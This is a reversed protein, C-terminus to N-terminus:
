PMEFGLGFKLTLFTDTKPDNPHLYAVYNIFYEGQATLTFIPAHEGEGLSTVLGAQAYPQFNGFSFYGNIADVHLDTGLVLFGSIPRPRWFLALGTQWNFSKQDPTFIGEFGNHYGVPLSTPGHNFFTHPKPTEIGDLSVVGGTRGQNGDLSYVPGGGGTVWGSCGSAGIAAMAFFAFRERNV